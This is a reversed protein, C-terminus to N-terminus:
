VVVNLYRAVDALPYLDEGILVVVTPISRRKCVEVLDGTRELIAGSARTSGPVQRAVVVTVAAQAAAPALQPASRGADVIVEVDPAAALIPLVRQTAATVTAAAEVSRLPAVLAGTSAGVSAGHAFVAAVDAPAAAVASALAPVAPLDWWAGVDGGSPDCELLVCPGPWALVLAAAVTTIGHGGAPGTVAVLTM